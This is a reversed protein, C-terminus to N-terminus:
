IPTLCKKTGFIREWAEPPISWRESQYATKIADQINKDDKKGETQVWYGRKQRRLAGGDQSGDGAIVHVRRGM